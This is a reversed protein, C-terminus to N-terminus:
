VEPLIDAENRNTKIIELDNEKGCLYMIIIFISLQKCM